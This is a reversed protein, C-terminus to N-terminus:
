GERSPESLCAYKPKWKGIQASFLEANEKCALGYVEMTDKHKEIVDLTAKGISGTSGLMVIRKKMERFGTLYHFVFPTSFLFSDIRDLIGGHGPILASSDKM